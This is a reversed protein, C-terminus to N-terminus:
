ARVRRAASLRLAEPAPKPAAFTLTVSAEATAEAIFVVKGTASFGISVEVETLSLAGQATQKQALDVLQSVQSTITRWEKLIERFPRQVEVNDGV